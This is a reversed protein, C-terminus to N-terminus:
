VLTATGRCFSSIRVPVGVPLTGPPPLSSTVSRYALSPWLCQCVGSAQRSCGPGCSGGARGVGQGRAEPRWLQPSQGNSLVLSHPDCSALGGQLACRRTRSFRPNAGSESPFRHIFSSFCFSRHATTVKFPGAPQPRDWLRLEAGRRGVSPAWRPTNETRGPGLCAGKHKKAADPESVSLSSESLEDGDPDLPAQSDWAPAQSEQDLDWSGLEREQPEPAPPAPAEEEQPASVAAAGPLSPPDEQPTGDVSAAYDLMLAAANDQSLSTKSIGSIIITSKKRPSKVRLKSSESLQRIAVEAVPDSGNLVLLETDSSSFTKSVPAGHCSVAQVSIDKEIVKVKVPTKLPSESSLPSARGTDVRPKTKVATVTTVVTGCPMVMRDKEVKAAPAPPATQWSKAEGPEVYSLEATVSGLVSSGFSPGSTLMFSQPGAPQKKFLDLPITTVASLAGSSQEEESIELYLEKSKANLEFTFEEEWTLDTANKALASFKQVPDNLRVVCQPNVYGSAGPDHLLSARINNVSLKLEHARPPKPPCSEQPSPATHQLSQVERVDVPKTRLVVSPSASGVLHKLIDKLTESVAKMEAAREEVPAKPQVTVATEPTSVFSWKIQIDDRKDKMHLELQLHVPSLRVGYLQRGMDGPSAPGASVLFQMAEGVVHCSVVKEQASRAVSSVRHVELGLPQWLPDEEFSLLLPGQALICWLEGPLCLAMSCTISNERPQKKVIGSSWSHCGKREAEDNLATVWAAQWQNRWSNLTLIWALLADSEPRRGEGPEAARRPPRPRARALAWQALYLGVTGLAVVFLSVLLLWQVEGLWWGLRSM